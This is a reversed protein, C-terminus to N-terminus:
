YARLSWNLSRPVQVLDAILTDLQDQPLNCLTLPKNRFFTHLLDCVTFRDPDHVTLFTGTVGMQILIKDALRDHLLAFSMTRELEGGAGCGVGPLMYRIDFNALFNLTADAPVRPTRSVVKSRGYADLTSDPSVSRRHPVPMARPLGCKRPISVATLTPSPPRAISTPSTAVAASLAANSITAAPQQQTGAAAATAKRITLRSAIASKISNMM